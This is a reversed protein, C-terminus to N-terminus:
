AVPPPGNLSATVRGRWEVPRLEDAVDLWFGCRPLLATHSGPERGYWPYDRCIPPREDYATCRRADPDFRDCALEWGGDAMERTITWHERIFSMNPGDGDIRDLVAEANAKSLTVAACCDGCGNCEGAM